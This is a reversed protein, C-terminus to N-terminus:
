LSGEPLVQLSIRNKVEYQWTEFKRNEEEEDAGDEGRWKEKEKRPGKSIM